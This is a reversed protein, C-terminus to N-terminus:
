ATAEEEVPVMASDPLSLCSQRCGLREPLLSCTLLHRPSAGVLEARAAWAPDLRVTAVRGTVPCTLRRARRAHEYAAHAVPLVVAVAAVIALLFLVVVVNM